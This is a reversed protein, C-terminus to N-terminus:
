PSSGIDQRKYVDLGFKMSVVKVNWCVGTIGIYNNGVAGVTGAVHTGHGDVDMSFQNDDAFNWGNVIRGQPSQWM